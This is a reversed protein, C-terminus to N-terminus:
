PMPNYKTFYIGFTAAGALIHVAIVVTCVVAVSIRAKSEDDSDKKFFSVIPKIFDVPTFVFLVLYTLLLALLELVVISYATDLLVASGKHILLFMIYMVAVATVHRVIFNVVSKVTKVVKGALKEPEISSIM